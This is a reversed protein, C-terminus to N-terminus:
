APEPEYVVEVKFRGPAEFYVAYYGEMYEPYFRAGGYLMPVGSPALFDRVFEDVLERSAVRFAIHNLGTQKRHYGGAHAPLAVNFCLYASGDSADFHHGEDTIRFSLFQLLAKWFSAADGNDLNIGIHGISARM